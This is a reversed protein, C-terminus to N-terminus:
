TGLYDRLLYYWTTNGGEKVAAVPATYADGGIFTYEKTAGGSTEKIYSGGSYWRTMVGNGNQTVTMRAREQDPNYLFSATYGNETVTSIKEFSTYTITQPLSPILGTSPDVCSLQYPKGTINYQMTGADSKLTINGNSNYGMDVFTTGGCYSRDLRNLNDYEFTEQLAGQLMNKRWNLNGSSTTFNYQMNQIFGTVISTPFGYNDYGFAANLSSGYTGGTVQGLANM